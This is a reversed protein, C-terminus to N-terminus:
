GRKLIYNLALLVLTIILSIVGSIKAASVKVGVLEKRNEDVQRITPTQNEKIRNEANTLSNEIDTKLRDIKSEFKNELEKFRDDVKQGLDLQVEKLFAVSEKTARKEIEKFAERLANRVEGRWEANVDVLNRNDDM